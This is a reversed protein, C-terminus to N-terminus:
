HKRQKNVLYKKIISHAKELDKELQLIREERTITENTAKHLEQNVQHYAKTWRESDVAFQERAFALEEEFQSRMERERKDMLRRLESLERDKTEVKKFLNEITADKQEFERKIIVMKQRALKIQNEAISLDHDTLTDHYNM